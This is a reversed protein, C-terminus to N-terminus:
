ASAQYAEELLEVVHVVRARMGSERVGRVMQLYCGTNSTVIIAAGTSAVDRMKAKLVQDAVRPHAINYVGASGCCRDPRAVEVLKLGPIAQLLQRPEEAIRQVNRLHCSDVYTVQVDLRGRPPTHLNRALFENIDFVKSAFERAKEAYEPDDALLRPYEKLTAGCGGANNIYADCGSALFLDITRRAMERAADTEGVHLAAAGCCTQGEPVFVDYGNRQLVRITALNVRGLLADQVCGHFFAVRGRRTGHAPYISGPQVAGDALPPLLSAMIRLRYPLVPARRVMEVLGLRQLPRLARALARLRIPHSLLSRFVLHRFARQHWPRQTQRELHERAAELLAGYPVGSPCAVECARCDLCLTIHRAFAGNLPITGEAAARMLLIRGRPAEMETRFIDYTPCAPLCLGCHICKEALARLSAPTYLSANSPDAM